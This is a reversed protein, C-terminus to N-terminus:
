ELKQEAEPDFDNPFKDAHEALISDFKGAYDDEGAHLKKIIEMVDKIKQINEEAM